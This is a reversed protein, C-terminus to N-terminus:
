SNSRCGTQKRKIIAVAPVIVDDRLVSSQSTIQMDSLCFLRAGPAEEMRERFWHYIFSQRGFTRRGGHQNLYVRGGLGCVCVCIREFM